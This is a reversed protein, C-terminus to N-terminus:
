LYTLQIVVKSQKMALRCHFLNKPPLDMFSPYNISWILSKLNILFSDTAYLYKIYLFNM